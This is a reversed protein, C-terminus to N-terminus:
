EEIDVRSDLVGEAMWYDVLEAGTTPMSQVPRNSILLRLAYESLPLGLHEAEDALEQELEIPVDLMISM